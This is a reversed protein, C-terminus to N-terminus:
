LAYVVHTPKVAGRHAHPVALGQSTSTATGPVLLWRRLVPPRRVHRCQGALVQPRPVLDHEVNQQALRAHEQVHRARANAARGRACGRRAPKGAPWPRGLDTRDRHVRSVGRCHALVLRRSRRISLTLSNLPPSHTGVPHLGQHTLSHALSHTLPTPAHTPSNLALQARARVSCRTRAKTSTSMSSVIARTLDPLSVTGRIMLPSSLSRPRAALRFGHASYLM